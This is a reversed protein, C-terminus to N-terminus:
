MAIAILHLGDNRILMRRLLQLQLIYLFLLRCDCSRVAAGVGGTRGFCASRFFGWLWEVLVAAVFKFPKPNKRAIVDDEVVQHWVLYCDVGAFATGVTRDLSGGLGRDLGAVLLVV